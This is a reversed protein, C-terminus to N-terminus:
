RRNERRFCQHRFLRRVVYGINGLYLRKHRWVMLRFMGLKRFFKLSHDRSSSRVRYIFLTEPLKVVRKNLCSMSIWFEWDEWGHVMADCYGGVIQWDSKRFMAAPYILNEVLLKRPEYDPLPSVGEQEGFMLREGFVVAVDQQADLVAVAQELYTSEIMDDADLPLIYEGAAESIARNRAASVGQNGTRIVRTKPQQLGGLLECTVPDTSGDDVIVIEYDDFTQAQVSALTELLFEGHNYCPIAVTVKAM